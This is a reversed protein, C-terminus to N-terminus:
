YFFNRHESMGEKVSNEQPRNTQCKESTASLQPKKMSVEPGGEGGGGGLNATM